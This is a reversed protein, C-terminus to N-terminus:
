AQPLVGGGAAKDKGARTCGFGYRRDLWLVAALAVGLPLLWPLLEPVQLGLPQLLRQLGINLFAVHTAIGCGIINVYHERLWWRPGTRPAAHLRLHRMDRLMNRGILLGVWGFGLLLGAGTSLGLALCAVASALSLWALLRYVPGYYRLPTRKDRLARWACWMVTATIVLLYGLFAALVTRGRLALIIAIPMSTLLVGCMASLYIRGAARHVPSGKRALGATWFSALAVTGAAVHGLVLYRYADM